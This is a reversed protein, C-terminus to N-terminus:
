IFLLNFLKRFSKKSFNRQTLADFFYIKEIIDDNFYLRIPNIDGNNFLDLIDGRISFECNERVTSVKKYGLDILLNRLSIISIKKLASIEIFLDKYFDIPANKISLGNFTTLILLQDNTFNGNILNTISKM